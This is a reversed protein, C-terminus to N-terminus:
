EAAVLWVLLSFKTFRTSSTSTVLSSLSIVVAAGSGFGLARCGISWFCPVDLLAKAEPAFMFETFTIVSRGVERTELGGPPWELMRRHHILKRGAEKFGLKQYSPELMCLHGVHASRRKPYCRETQVLILISKTRNYIFSRCVIGWARWENTEVNGITM